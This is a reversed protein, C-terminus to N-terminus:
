LLCDSNGKNWQGNMFKVVETGQCVPGSTCSSYEANCKGKVFGDWRKLLLFKIRSLSTSSIGKTCVFVLTYKRKQFMKCVCQMVEGWNVNNLHAKWNQESYFLAREAYNM